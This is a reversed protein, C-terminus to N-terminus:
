NERKRVEIRACPDAIAVFGFRMPKPSYGDEIRMDYNLLIRVLCLKLENNAFFRGPCQHKGVGFSNHERSSQVFQSATIGAERRKIFRWADYEEPKDYM